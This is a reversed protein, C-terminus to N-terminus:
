NRSGTKTRRYDYDAGSEDIEAATQEIIRNARIWDGRPISYLNLRRGDLGIENLLKKTRNVRKAARLNGDLYDCSGEPCIFVIVADAGAEFAHLLVLERTMSSCPMKVSQIDYAENERLSVGNLARYCHFVTIKVRNSQEKGAASLRSRAQNTRAATVM